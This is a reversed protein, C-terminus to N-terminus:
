PPLSSPASKMMLTVRLAEVAGVQVGYVSKM